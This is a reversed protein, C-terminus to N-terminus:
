SATTPAVSPIYTRIEKGLNGQTIAELNEEREMGKGMFESVIKRRRKSQREGVEKKNPSIAPFYRKKVKNGCFVEIPANPEKHFHELVLEEMRKKKVEEEISKVKQEVKEEIIVKIEETESKLKNNERMVIRKEREVISEKELKKELEKMQQNKVVEMEFLRKKLEECMVDAERRAKKEKKLERTKLNIEKKCSKKTSELKKRLREIKKTKLDKTYQSHHYKDKWYIVTYKKADKEKRKLEKKASSITSFAGSITTGQKKYFYM